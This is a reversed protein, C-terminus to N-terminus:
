RKTWTESGSGYWTRWTFYAQLSSGGYPPPVPDCLPPGCIAAPAAYPQGPDGYLPVPGPWYNGSVTGSQRGVYQYGRYVDLQLRNGICQGYYSTGDDQQAQIWIRYQRVYVTSTYPRYGGSTQQGRNWWAGRLDYQCGGPYPAPAGGGPPPAAYPAAASSPAGPAGGSASPSSQGFGEEEPAAMGPGWNSFQPGPTDSIDSGGPPSGAVPTATAARTATPAPTQTAPATPPSPLTPTAAPAAVVATPSAPAPGGDPPTEAQPAEAAALAEFALVHWRAGFAVRSDGNVEGPQSDGSFYYLPWDDITLQWQGDSREIVGLSGPLDDPAVLADGVVYPPWAVACASECHSVGLEDGEWAYLTWGDPDTLLSGDGVNSGLTVTPAQDQAKAADRELNFAVLIAAAMGWRLFRALPSIGTDM